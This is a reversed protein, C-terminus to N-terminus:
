ILDSSIGYKEPICTLWIFRKNNTIIYLCDNYIIYPEGTPLVRVRSAEFTFNAYWVYDWGFLKNWLKWM